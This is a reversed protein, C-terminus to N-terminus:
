LTEPQHWSRELTRVNYYFTYGLGDEKATLHTPPQANPPPPPHPGRAHPHIPHLPLAKSECRWGDDGGNDAM